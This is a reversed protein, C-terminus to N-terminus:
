RTTVDFVATSGRILRVRIDYGAIAVTKGPRITATSNGAYFRLARRMREVGIMEGNDGCRFWGDYMGAGNTARLTFTGNQFTGVCRPPAAKAV